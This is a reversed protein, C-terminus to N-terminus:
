FYSFLRLYFFALLFINKKRKKRLVFSISHHFRKMRFVILLFHNLKKQFIKSDNHNFITISPLSSLTNDDDEISLRSNNM